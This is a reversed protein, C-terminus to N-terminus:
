MFDILGSEGAWAQNVAIVEKNSIIPRCYSSTSFLIEDAILGDILRDSWLEGFPMLLPIM